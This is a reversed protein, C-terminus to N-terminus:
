VHAGSLRLHSYMPYWYVYCLVPHPGKEGLVSLYLLDRGYNTFRANSGSVKHELYCQRAPANCVDGVYQHTPLFPHQQHFAASGVAPRFPPPLSHVFISLLSRTGRGGAPHELSVVVVVESAALLAVLLVTETVLAWVLVLVVFAVYVAVALCQCAPPHFAEM